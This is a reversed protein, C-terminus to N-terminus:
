MRVLLDAFLPQVCLARRVKIYPDEIVREPGFVPVRKGDKKRWAGLYKSRFTNAKKTAAPSGPAATSTTSAWTESGNTPPDEFLFPLSAELDAKQKSAADSKGDTTVFAPTTSTQSEIEATLEWSNLAGRDAVGLERLVLASVPLAPSRDARASALLLVTFGLLVADNRDFAALPEAEFRSLTACSFPEGFQIFLFSFIRWWRSHARYMIILALM